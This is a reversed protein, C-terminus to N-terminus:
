DTRSLIAALFFVPLLAGNLVCLVRGVTEHQDARGTMQFQGSGVVVEATKRSLKQLKRAPFGLPPSAPAFIGDGAVIQIHLVGLGPYIMTELEVDVKESRGTVAGPPVVVSERATDCKGCVSGAVHLAKKVPIVLWAPVVADPCQCLGHHGDGFCIRYTSNLFAGGQGFL